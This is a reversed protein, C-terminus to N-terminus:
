QQQVDRCLPRQLSGSLKAANADSRCISLSLRDVNVARRASIHVLFTKVKFMLAISYFTVKLTVKFPIKLCSFNLICFAFSVMPFLTIPNIFTCCSEVNYAFVRCWNSRCCSYANWILSYYSHMIEFPSKSTWQWEIGMQLQVFDRWWRMPFLTIPLNM